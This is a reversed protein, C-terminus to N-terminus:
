SSGEKPLHVTFVSARKGDSEVQISGGLAKAMIQCAPLGLGSDVRLGTSRLAAAGFPEFLRPQLERPIGPGEDIVSIHIRGAEETGVRVTVNTGKPTHRLANRLLNQLIRKLLAADTRAALPPSGEITISRGELAAATQFEGVVHHVLDVLDTAELFTKLEGTTARSVELVNLIMTSLDRCRRLAEELVDRTPGPRGASDERLVQLAASIGTLPNQLDHVIMDSLQQKAAQLKTLAENSRALAQSEQEIRARASFHYADLALGMDLYIIKTLSVITQTYRENEGGFATSLVESALHLYKLYAGLYWEPSLGIRQHTLGVQVRNECYALDYTGSSLETFYRAQLKKVRDLVGPASLMQRTHEHSTVYDYFRDIISQAHTVLHSHASRLRREDEETIELYAKRRRVEEPTLRFPVPAEM